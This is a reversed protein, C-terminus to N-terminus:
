PNNKGQEACPSFGGVDNEEIKREIDRQKHKAEEKFHV